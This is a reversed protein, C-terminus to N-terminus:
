KFMGGVLPVKSLGQQIAGAADAGGKSATPPIIAKAFAPAQAAVFIALVKALALMVPGITDGLTAGEFVTEPFELRVRNGKEVLFYPLNVIAFALPFVLSNRLMSKFINVTMAENGPISGAMIALPAVIVNVLLTFYTKVLTFWLKITGFLIILLVALAILLLIPGLPGLFSTLTLVLGAIGIGGTTLGGGWGFTGGLLKFINHVQVNSDLIGALVRMLIGSIDLILGAIAFSFTVLVLGVIVKPIANGITVVTQGGVKSRFMIMFGVVVMVLVFGVYAINRTVSWLTDINTKQLDDYGAAYVSQKEKYGPVWEESLHAVVDISPQANFMATVEREVVGTLGLRMAEPLSEDEAMAQGGVTCQPCITSLFFDGIATFFKSVLQSISEGVAGTIKQVGTKIKGWLGQNDIAEPEETIISVPDEALVMSIPKLAFSFTSLAVLFIGLIPFLYKRM